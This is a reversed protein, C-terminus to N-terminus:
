EFIEEWHPNKWDIVNQVAQAAQTPTIKEWQPWTVTLDCYEAPYTKPYFLANALRPPLGLAEAAIAEVEDLRSIPEDSMETAVYGAMCCNTGCWNRRSLPLRLQEDDLLTNMDFKREPAGALLWSKLQELKEINM